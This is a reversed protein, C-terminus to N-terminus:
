DKAGPGGASGVSTKKEMAARYEEVGIAAMAARHMLEDSLLTLALVEGLGVRYNISLCTAINGAVDLFDRPELGGTEFDLLWAAADYQRQYRPDPLRAFQGAGDLGWARPLLAPPTFTWEAGDGLAVRYGREGLLGVARALSGPGPRLATFWGAWVAPTAMGGAQPPAPPTKELPAEVPIACWSQEGPFYGLRVQEQSGGPRPWFVCGPRGSPGTNVERAVPECDFLHPLGLAALEAATVSARGEVFYLLPNDM